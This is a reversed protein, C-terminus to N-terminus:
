KGLVRGILEVSYGAGILAAIGVGAVCVAFCAMILLRQPQKSIEDYPPEGRVLEGFAPYKETFASKLWFPIGLLLAVIGIAAVIQAVKELNLLVLLVIVLSLVAAGTLLAGAIVAPLFRLIFVALVIGLAVEVILM